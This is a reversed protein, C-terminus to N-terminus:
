ATLNLAQQEFLWTTVSAVEEDSLGQWLNARPAEFKEEQPPTTCSARGNNRQALRGDAVAAANGHGVYDRRIPRWPSGAPPGSFADAFTPLLGSAAFYGFCVASTSSFRM